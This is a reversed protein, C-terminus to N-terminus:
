CLCLDLSLKLPFPHTFYKKKMEVWEMCHLSKSSTESIELSSHKQPLNHGDTICASHTEQRYFNIESTPNELTTNLSM